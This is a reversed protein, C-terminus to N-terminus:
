QQGWTAAAPPRTRRGIDEPAQADEEAADTAGRPRGAHCFTVQHSKMGQFQGERGAGRESHCLARVCLCTCARVRMVVSLMCVMAGSPAADDGDDSCDSARRMMDGASGSGRKAEKKLGVGTGGKGKAAVAAAAAALAAAAAASVMSSYSEASGSADLGGQARAVVAAAPNPNRLLALTAAVEVEEAEFPSSKKGKEAKGKGKPVPKGKAGKIGGVGAGKGCMGKVGGVLGASALLQEYLVNGEAGGPASLAALATLYHLIGESSLAPLAAGPVTGDTALQTSALASLLAANANAALAASGEGSASVQQQALSMQMAAMQLLPGLGAADLGAKQDGGAGGAQAGANLLAALGALGPGFAAAAARAEPTASADTADVAPAALAATAFSHQGQLLKSVAAAAAAAAAAQANAALTADGSSWDEAKVEVSYHSDSAPQKACGAAAAAASALDKALEHQQQKKDLEHAQVRHQLRQERKHWRQQQHQLSAPPLVEQVTQMPESVRPSVLVLRRTGVTIGALLMDVKLYSTEDKKEQKGKGSHKGAQLKKGPTEKTEKSGAASEADQPATRQELRLSLRTGAMKQDAVAKRLAFEDDPHAIDCLHGVPVSAAAGEEAGAQQKTCWEKLGDSMAIVKLDPLELELTWLGKSSLMGQRHPQEAHTTDSLPRPGTDGQVRM